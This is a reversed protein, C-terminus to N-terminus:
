LAVPRIECFASIFDNQLLWNECLDTLTDKKMVLIFFVDVFKHPFQGKCFSDTVAKQSYSRVGPGELLSSARQSFGSM